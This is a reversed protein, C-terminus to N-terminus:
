YSSGSESELDIVRSHRGRLVRFAASLVNSSRRSDKMLNSNHACQSSLQQVETGGYQCGKRCLGQNM